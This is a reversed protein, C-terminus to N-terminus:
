VFYSSICVIVGFSAGVLLSGWAWSRPGWGWSVGDWGWTHRWDWWGAGSGVFGAGRWRGGYATAVPGRWGSGDWGHKYWGLHRGNDHWGAGGHWAGGAHSAWDGHRGADGHWGWGGRSGEGHSGGGGQDHKAKAPGAIIIALAAAAIFLPKWRIAKPRM